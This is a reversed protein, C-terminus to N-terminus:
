SQRGVITVTDLTLVTPAQGSHAFAGDQAVQDFQWLMVGNTAVTMLVAVMLGAIRSTRNTKM